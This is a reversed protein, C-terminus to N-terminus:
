QMIERPLIRYNWDGHYTDRVIFLDMMDDDSIKISKQYANSDVARKIKLGSKTTTNAILNVIVELSVLPRGRWNKSIFSFMKHEIKNWKSTGPPFHVVHITLGTEDAFHQLSSKWLRRRSGNSGGSDATIMLEHAEPYIEKGMEYWWNRISNVAFQSTDYNIGVSVWGQNNTVDYVGFPIAHGLEKDEFDHVDVPTPYRKPNWERGGNKYNGVLERKKTDVSIVPQNNEQTEKLQAYIYEFQENRDPHQNKEITKYDAQLSYGMGKLLTRVTEHSVKRDISLEEALTRLSKSTWLLPSEPDGRTVPDILRFLDSALTTDTEAKKKRGGGEKRIRTVEQDEETVGSELEKIGKGIVERSMGTIVHMRSIGGRGLSKAFSAVALRRTRENLYPKLEDLVCKIDSNEM